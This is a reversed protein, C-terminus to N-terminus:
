YLNLTKQKLSASYSLPNVEIGDKAAIIQQGTQKQIERSEYLPDSNLMKTGFHTLVTLKPKVRKMIKVVDESNLHHPMKESFPNRVNLILIDSKDYQAAIDKSYGTDSSYSLIFKSTFFKFGIGTPDDSKTRLTHIEIDEIGIKKDHGVVIVRELCQKHFNTLYPHETETGNIVSEPAIMVGRVDFGDHTMGSIIANVDNCNILSNNSVLLATTQRINVGLQAAKVLSGPGPDLHFQYGGVTIVIGGSARLQKGYTNTDGATGLFLINSQM